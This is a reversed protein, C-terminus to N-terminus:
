AWAFMRGTSPPVEAMRAREGFISSPLTYPSTCFFGCRRSAKRHDRSDRKRHACRGSLQAPSCISRSQSTGGPAFRAIQELTEYAGGRSPPWRDPVFVPSPRALCSSHASRGISGMPEGCRGTRHHLSLLPLRACAPARVAPVVGRPRSNSTALYSKPETDSTGDAARGSSSSVRPVQASLSAVEGPAIHGASILNRLWQAAFPDIENYYAGAMETGAM